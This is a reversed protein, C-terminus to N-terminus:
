EIKVSRISSSKSPVTTRLRVRLRLITLSIIPAGVITRTKRAPAHIESVLLMSTGPSMMLTFRFLCSASSVPM